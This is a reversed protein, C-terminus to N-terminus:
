ARRHKGARHEESLRVYTEASRKIGEREEPTTERVVKGPVGLVLSHPPIRMGQRCVAGAGIVSGTGVRVGNLLIAGMGILSEDEVTAGHVIARHGITVRAGVTVGFGYDVHIVTGDQVNSDAGIVVPEFEARIVAAPWISVREGLQVDGLVVASDHIWPM